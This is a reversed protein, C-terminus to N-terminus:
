AFASPVTYTGGTGLEMAVGNLRNAVGLGFRARWEASVIPYRDDTPMLALGRPLGTAAPDVREKLPAEMELHIGLMYNAPIERWEVAWAGNVRGLIRGPVMPLNVPIDVNDGTRIFNDPVEVFSTLAEIVARQQNNVFVVINSGGTVAGFHEELEDVITPFPNNADDIAAAAYGSELYHNDTAETDSGIVPPYLVSDGNALAQVTLSGVRPDVFTSATNNFLRRLMEFRYRNIYRIIMGDIHAQYEAPTLYAWDVDTAAIQEAFDELPFSVDWSGVRRVAAGRVGDARRSMLGTGPLQYRESTNETLGSVFIPRSANFDALRRNIYEVTATYLIQQDARLAFQYDSPNLQALGFIASM